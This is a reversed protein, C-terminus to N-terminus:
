QCGGAPDRYKRQGVGRKKKLYAQVEEEGRKVSIEFEEHSLPATESVHYRWLYVVAFVITVYFGWLWWPPLRNDLERIGDYDHGLDIDKEQEVPKFKNLKNWWDYSKKKRETKLEVREAETLEKEKAARILFRINMLLVLIIALELFVVSAMVYFASVSLGGISQVAQETSGNAAAGDQAMSVSSLLLLAIAALPKVPALKQKRVTKVRWDAAGLLLNALVAIIILLVTMLLLLTLALPNSFISPAPADAALVPQVGALTALLLMMWVRLSKKCKMYLPKIPLM